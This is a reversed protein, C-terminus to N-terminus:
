RGVPRVADDVESWDVLDLSRRTAKMDSIARGVSARWLGCRRDYTLDAVRDNPRKHTHVFEVNGYHGCAITASRGSSMITVWNPLVQSIVGADSLVSELSIYNFTSARLRAAAHYLLLGDSQGPRGYRYLGRCVRELVGSSVARSLMVRFAGDSIEPVACRLDEHALLLSRDSALTQLIKALRRIPQM